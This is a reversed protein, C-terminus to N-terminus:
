RDNKWYRSYIAAAPNHGLVRDKTILTTVPADSHKSFLADHGVCLGLIINLDTKARNLLEAQILPACIVEDLNEEHVLPLGYESKPIAACKCCVSSVEFSSSLRDALARAEEGLGVCFAIGLHTFGCRKAFEATERVRHWHMYGTAEVEAAAKSLNQVAPPAEAYLLRAKESVGLCDTGEYCLRRKCHACDYKM